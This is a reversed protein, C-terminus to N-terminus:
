SADHVGVVAFTVIKAVENMFRRVRFHVKRALPQKMLTGSAASRVAPHGAHRYRSLRYRLLFDAPLMAGPPDNM